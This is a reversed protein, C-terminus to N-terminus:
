AIKTVFNIMTKLFVFSKKPGGDSASCETKMVYIGWNLSTDRRKSLEYENWMMLQKRKEINRPIGPRSM